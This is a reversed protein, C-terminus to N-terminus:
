HNNLLVFYTCQTDKNLGAIQLMNPFLDVLQCEIIQDTSM